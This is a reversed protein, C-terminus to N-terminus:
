LAGLHGLNRRKLKTCLWCGIPVTAASTDLVTQVDVCFLFETKQQKHMSLTKSSKSPLNQTPGLPFGYWFVTSKLQVSDYITCIAFIRSTASPLHCSFVKRVLVKDKPRKLINNAVSPTTLYYSIFFDSSSVFTQLRNSLFNCSNKLIWLNTTTYFPLRHLM